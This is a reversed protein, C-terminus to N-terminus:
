EENDSPAPVEADTSAADKGDAPAADKNESEEESAKKANKHHPLKKLEPALEPEKKKPKGDKMFEPTKEKIKENLEIAFPKSPKYKAPDHPIIHLALSYGMCQDAGSTMSLRRDKRLFIYQNSAQYEPALKWGRDRFLAVYFNEVENAHAIPGYLTATGTGDPQTADTEISVHSHIVVEPWNLLSIRPRDQPPEEAMKKCKEAAAPSSLMLLNLLLICFGLARM